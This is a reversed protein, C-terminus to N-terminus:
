WRGGATLQPSRATGQGSRAARHARARSHKRAGARRDANARTGQRHAHRKLASMITTLALADTGTLSM